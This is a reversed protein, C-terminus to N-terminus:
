IAALPFCFLLRGFRCEGFDDLLHRLRNVFGRPGNHSDHESLNGNTSAKRWFYVVSGWVRRAPDRSHSTDFCCTARNIGLAVQICCHPPTLM